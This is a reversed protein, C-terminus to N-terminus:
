QALGQIVGDRVARGILSPLNRLMRATDDPVGAQTVKVKEGSQVRMGYSDGSYGPPVTFSGGSAYGGLLGNGDDEHGGTGSSDSIYHTRVYVDRDPIGSLARAFEDASAKSTDIQSTIEGIKTLLTKTPEDILGMNEAMKTYVELDKTSLGDLAMYKLTTQLIFENTERKYAKENEEIATKNKGLETQLEALEKKQDETLWSKGELESIKSVLKANTEWLEGNKENFKNYTETVDGSIYSNVLEFNGKLEEQAKALEETSEKAARDWKDLYESSRAVNYAAESRLGYKERLVDNYKGAEIDTMIWDSQKQSMDGTRVYADLVARAYERYSQTNKVVQKEQSAYADKVRDNWKVLTMFGNAADTLGKILPTGLVYKVGQVADEVDDMAIEFERAAKIADDTMVLSDDIAASMNRIGDAGQEMMMAMSSGSRGFTDMLFKSRELGPALKLYQESLNSLGEVSVDIGKRVAGQLATGLEEESIKLDDAVQILRSTEEATNGTIKSLDRVSKGYAVTETVAQKAFVAMGAIAAGAGLSALNLGTVSSITDAAGKNLGQMAAKSNTLSSNLKSTDGTIEYFLSGIKKSM